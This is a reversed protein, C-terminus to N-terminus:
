NRKRLNLNDLAAWADGAQPEDEGSSRDKRPGPCVTKGDWDCRPYPPLVLLIDERVWPTLDVLEAGPREMQMAFHDIRVPYKFRHLCSGCEMELDLALHGTAFLSSGSTGVDFSYILDGLPRIAPDDLDLFSPPATGEIHLGEPPIQHLHLKMITARANQGQFPTKCAQLGDPMPIIGM